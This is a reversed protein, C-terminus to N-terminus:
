SKVLGSAVREPLTARPGFTAVGQVVDWYTEAQIRVLSHYFRIRVLIM